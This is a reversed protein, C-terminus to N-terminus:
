LHRAPGRPHVGRLGECLAPRVQAPWAGKRGPGRRLRGHHRFDDPPHSGPRDGARLLSSRRRQPLHRGARRHAQGPRRRQRRSHGQLHRKEGGLHLSGRLHRRGFRRGEPGAERFLEYLRYLPLRPEGPAQCLPGDQFLRRHFLGPSQCLDRHLLRLRLLLGRQAFDFRGGRQPDQLVEHGARRHRHHLGRRPHLPPRRQSPGGNRGPGPRLLLREQHPGRRLRHRRGRLPHHPRRM